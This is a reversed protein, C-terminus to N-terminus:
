KSSEQGCFYNKSYEKDEISKSILENYNSELNEDKIWDALPFVANPFRTLESYSIESFSCDIFKVTALNAMRFNVMEFRCEEFESGSGELWSM